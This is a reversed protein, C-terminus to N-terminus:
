KALITSLKESIEDSLDIKSCSRPISNTSILDFIGTKRLKDLASEDSLAHVCMVIIRGSKNKKLIEIAKMITGGSSIMDDLIIIDSGAVDLDLDDYIAIQGTNRDRVKRMCLSPSKIIDAFLKVRDSGGQDPSVVVANKLELNNLAYRALLPISTLNVINSQFYSLAKLSHIDITVLDKIGFCDFLKAILSMTVVEGDLFSRDQRAYGMYPIVPIVEAAGSSKCYSVMMLTQLYNSDVPPFTSQVIICKKESLDANIRIKSEGDSFTRLEVNVLEVNLCSAISRGLQTSSPGPLVM